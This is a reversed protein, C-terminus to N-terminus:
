KIIIVGVTGQFEDPVSSVGPPPTWADGDVRIALRHMGPTIALTAEWYDDDARTLTIPNWGTFDGSLEVSRASPVRVRLTRQGGARDEVVFAAAVPRVGVPLRPRRLVSPAVRFGLELFRSRSIGYAASAPHVGTAAILAVDPAFALSAQVQGWTENPQRATFMRTGVVGRLAVPGASWHLAVEADNWRRPTGTSGSDGFTLTDPPRRVGTDALAANAASSGAPRIKATRPGRAGERSGFSSLSVTLVTAGWQHWGGASVHPVPSVPTPKNDRMVERGVWAGSRGARYSLRTDAGLSTVAFTENLMSRDAFGAVSLQLGGRTPSFYTAGLNGFGNLRQGDGGIATWRGDVTLRPHDFRAFPSVALQSQWEGARPRATRSSLDIASTFQAPLAHAFGLTTVLCAIVGLPWRSALSGVKNSGNSM